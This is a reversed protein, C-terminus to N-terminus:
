GALAWGAVARSLHFYSDYQKLAAKVAESLSCPIAVVFDGAARVVVM